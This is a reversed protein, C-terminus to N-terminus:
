RITFGVSKWRRSSFTVQCGGVQLVLTIATMLPKLVVYNLIGWSVGRVFPEGMEWPQVLNWERGCAVIRLPFWHHIPAKGQARV